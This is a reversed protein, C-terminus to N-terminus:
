EPVVSTRTRLSFSWVHLLSFVAIGVVAYWMVERRLLEDSSGSLMPWGDLDSLVVHDNTSISVAGTGSEMIYGTSQQFYYWRVWNCSSGTITTADEKTLDGWVMVYSSNSDQLFCYHDSWGLRPLYGAAYTAYAGTPSVNSYASLTVSAARTGGLSDTATETAEATNGSITTLQESITSLLEVQRSTESETEVSELVEQKQLETSLTQVDSSLNQVEIRIGELQSTYDVGSPAATEEDAYAGCPLALACALAVGLAYAVARVM